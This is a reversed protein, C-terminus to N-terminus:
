EESYLSKLLFQHGKENLHGDYAYYFFNKCSVKCKKKELSLESSMAQTLDVFYSGLDDSLKKRLGRLDLKLANHMKWYYRGPTNENAFSYPSPILIIRVQSELKKALEIMSLLDRKAMEYSTSDIESWCKSNETFAVYDSSTPSLILRLDVLSDKGICKDVFINKKISLFALRRAMNNYLRSIRELTYSGKNDFKYRPPDSQLDYWKQRHWEIKGRSEGWKSRFYSPTFDNAFIFVDYRSKKKSISKMAKLYQSTNWSSYGFNYALYGPTYQSSNILGALTKEYDLEEAQIFSDGILFLNYANIEFNKEKQSCSIRGGISDTCSTVKKMEPYDRGPTKTYVTNPCPSYIFPVERVLTNECHMKGIIRSKDEDQSNGKNKNIRPPIEFLILSALLIFGFSFLINIGIVKIQM